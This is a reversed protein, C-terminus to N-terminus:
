MKGSSEVQQVVADWFQGQWYNIDLEFVQKATYRTSTKSVFDKNLNGNYGKLNVLGFKGFLFNEPSPIVRCEVLNGNKGYM